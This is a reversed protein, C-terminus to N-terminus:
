IFGAPHHRKDEVNYAHWGIFLVFVIPAFLGIGFTAFGLILGAWIVFPSIVMLGLGTEYHAKYIHGLGPIISSIAAILDCTHSHHTPHAKKNNIAEM